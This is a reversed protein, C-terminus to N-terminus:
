NGWHLLPNMNPLNWKKSRKPPRPQQYRIPATNTCPKRRGQFSSYLYRLTMNPHRKLIKANLTESSFTCPKSTCEPNELAPAHRPIMQPNMLLPGLTGTLRSNRCVPHKKPSDKYYPNYYTPTSIQPRRNRSVRAAGHQSGM